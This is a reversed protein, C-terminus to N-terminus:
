CSSPPVPPAPPRASPNTQPWPAYLHCFCMCYWVISTSIHQSTGTNSKEMVNEIVKQNSTAKVKKSKKSSDKPALKWCREVLAAQSGKGKTRTSNEETIKMKVGPKEELFLMNQQVDITPNSSEHKMEKKFHDNEKKKQSIREHEPIYDLSEQPRALRLAWRSVSTDLHIWIAKSQRHSLSLLLLYLLSAFIELLWMMQFKLGECVFEPRLNCSGLQKEVVLFSQDGVGHGPAVPPSTPMALGWLFPLFSMMELCNKQKFFASASFVFVDFPPFRNTEAQARCPGMRHCAMASPWKGICVLNSQRM